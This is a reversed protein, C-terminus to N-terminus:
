SMATDPQRSGSKSRAGASGRYRGGARSDDNRAAWEATALLNDMEIMLRMMVDDNAGHVDLYDRTTDVIDARLRTLATANSRGTAGPFECALRICAITPKVSATPLAGGPFLRSLITMSMDISETAIGSLLNLFAVSAEGKTRDRGSSVAAPRAPARELRRLQYEAGGHAAQDDHSELESGGLTDSFDATSQRAIIM